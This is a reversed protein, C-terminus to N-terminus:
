LAKLDDRMMLSRLLLPFEVIHVVFEHAGSFFDRASCVFVCLKERESRREASSRLMLRTANGLCFFFKELAETDNIRDFSSSIRPPVQSVAVFQVNPHYIFLSSRKQLQLKQLFYPEFQTRMSFYKIENPDNMECNTDRYRTVGPAILPLDSSFNTLINAIM